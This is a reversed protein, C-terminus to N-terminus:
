FQQLPVPMYKAAILTFMAAGAWSASMTAEFNPRWPSEWEYFAKM